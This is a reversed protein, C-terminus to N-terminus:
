IRSLLKNSKSLIRYIIPKKHMGSMEILDKSFGLKYQAIRPLRRKNIICLDFFRAQLKKAELISNWWILENQYKNQPMFEKRGAIYAHFFNANGICLMASILEGNYKAGIIFARNLNGYHKYLTVIFNSRSASVSLKVSARLEEYLKLFDEIEVNKYLEIGKKTSRRINHRTNSSIIHDLIEGEDIDLPVLATQFKFCKGGDKVEPHLISSMYTLSENIKVNTHKILEQSNTKEVDYIWGGYPIEFSSLNSFSQRTLRSKFTHCPMVGVLLHEKYALFYSLDTKFVRSAIRNFGTEHFVTGMHQDCFGNIELELAPDLLSANIRKIRLKAM